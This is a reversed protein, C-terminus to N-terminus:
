LHRRLLGLSQEVAETVAQIEARMHTSGIQLPPGDGFHDPPPWTPFPSIYGRVTGSALDRGSM